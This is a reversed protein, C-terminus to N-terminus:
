QNSNTSINALRLEKEALRLFNCTEETQGSLAEDNTRRAIEVEHIAEEVHEHFKHFNHWDRAAQVFVTGPTYSLGMATTAQCMEQQALVEPVFVMMGLFIIYLKKM